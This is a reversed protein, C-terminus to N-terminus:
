VAEGCLMLAGPPVVYRGEGQYCDITADMVTVGESKCMLHLRNGEFTASSEDAEVLPLPGSPLEPGIAAMCGVPGFNGAIGGGLERGHLGCM